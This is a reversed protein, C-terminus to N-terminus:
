STTHNCARICADYDFPIDYPILTEVGNETVVANGNRFLEISADATQNLNRNPHGNHWEIRYTNNTTRGMFVETDHPALSLKTVLSAIPTPNKMSPYVAGQLHLISFPFHFINRQM